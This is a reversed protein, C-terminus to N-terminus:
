AKPSEGRAAKEALGSMAQRRALEALVEDFRVGCAQWLVLLHFLVDASECILGRRDGKMAEIVTEVAEEGFKRACTEVGGALLQATWSQQPDAGSRRAIRLALDELTTM